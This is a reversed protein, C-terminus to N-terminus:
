LKAQGTLLVTKATFNAKGMSYNHDDSTLVLFGNKIKESIPSIKDNM